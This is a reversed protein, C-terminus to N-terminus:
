AAQGQAADIRQLYHRRRTRPLSVIDAESWHYHSALSHIEDLLSHGQLQDFGFPDFAVVQECGCALCHTSLNLGLEPSLTELATDIRALAADDLAAVDAATAPRGDVSDLCRSVLIELLREDPADCLEMEDLGTPLRLRLQREGVTLSAVPYGPGAPKMPLRSRELKLDFSEACRVCRASVWFGDGWLSKALHLLLYQRDGM